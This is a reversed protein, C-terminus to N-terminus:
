HVDPEGGEARAQEEAQARSEFELGLELQDDGRHAPDGSLWWQWYEDPGAFLERRADTKAWCERVIREFKEWYRPWRRMSERKAAESQMPCLICGLRKFGEDYLGCYPLEEARIFAWVDADTWALMPSVLEKGRSFCKRIIGYKSRRASEAARVGVLVRRGEGGNEKLHDCCWRGWRMPPGKRECLTFFCERPMEWEVQPYKRKIFRTLEPPDITTVSYHADFKVGALESLRLLCVSDKGGSFALYYGEPPEFERMIAISNDVVTEGFLNTRV